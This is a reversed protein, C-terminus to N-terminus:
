DSSRRFQHVYSRPIVPRLHGTPKLLLEASMNPRGSVDVGAAPSDEVASNMPGTDNKKLDYFRRSRRAKTRLGYFKTTIEGGNDGSMGTPM